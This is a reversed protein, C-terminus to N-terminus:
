GLKSVEAALNQALFSAEKDLYRQGELFIVFLDDTCQKAVEMRLGASTPTVGELSKLYGNLGTVFVQASYHASRLARLFAVGSTAEAERLLNELYDQVQADHTITNNPSFPSCLCWASRVTEAFM